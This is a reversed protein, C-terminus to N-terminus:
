ENQKIRKLEEDICKRIKEADEYREDDILRKKLMELQNVYIIDNRDSVHKIYDKIEDQNKEMRLTRKNVLIVVICVAFSNLVFCAISFISNVIEMSM